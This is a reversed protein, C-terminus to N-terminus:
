IFCDEGLVKKIENKFEPISSDVWFSSNTKVIKKSGELHLYVEDNGKYKDFIRKLERQVLANEYHPAIKLHVDSNVKSLKNLKFAIVKSEREDVSFSGEIVVINDQYIDKSHSRFAKPFVVVDLKGTLDEITLIAMTDGMKTNRIACSTIIGAVKVVKGDYLNGEEFLSYLPTYKKLAEAYDDLPHGTVYFGILEKENQLIVEKPMEDMKPLAIENVDSFDNEDSFLGIQGNANDKQYSAGLEVAADLIAMMQSRKVGFSDMAGCKIMGELVRKNVVRMNVRRCFDVLSKFPGDTKRNEMIAAVAAEGVSKIGALGFRISNGKHVTFTSGSENVDPPLIKIGSKKCM